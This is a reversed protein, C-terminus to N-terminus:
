WYQGIVLWSQFQHGYDANVSEQVETLDIGLSWNQKNKLFISYKNALINLYNIIYNPIFCLFKLYLIYEILDDM